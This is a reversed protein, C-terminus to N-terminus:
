ICYSELVKTLFIDTQYIIFSHVTCFLVKRWELESERVAVATKKFIITQMCVSLCKLLDVLNFFKSNNTQKWPSNYYWHQKKKLEGCLGKVSHVYESM